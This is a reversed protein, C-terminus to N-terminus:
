KSADLVERWKIITRSDMGSKGHNIIDPNIMYRGRRIMVIVRDSLMSAIIRSVQPVSVESYKAIEAQTISVVNGSGKHDCLCDFV